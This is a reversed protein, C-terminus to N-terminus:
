VINEEQLGTKSFLKLLERDTKGIRWFVKKRNSDIDKVCYYKIFLFRVYFVTQYENLGAKISVRQSPLNHADIYLLVRRYGLEHLYKLILRKGNSAVGRGRYEPITYMHSMYAIDEPIYSLLDIASIDVKNFELAQYFIVRGENKLVLLINGKDLYELAKTKSFWEGWCNLYEANEIEEKEVRILNMTEENEEFPLQDGMRIEFFTLERKKLLTKTM